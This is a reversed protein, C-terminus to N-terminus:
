TNQNNPADDYLDFLIKRNLKETPLILKSSTPVILTKDINAFSLIHQLQLYMKEADLNLTEIVKNMEDIKAQIEANRKIKMAEAEGQAKIKLAESEIKALELKEDRINTQQIKILERKKEEIEKKGEIFEKEAEIEATQKIKNVYVDMNSKIAENLQNAIEEDEPVIRKIDIGFIEFGNEEFIFSGKDGFIANKLIESAKSHLEEFNYKAAEDRIIGAMTSMALGIFDSVKFIKAPNQPDIKFRWKYRLRMKLLANDKTRIDLEDTSFNPGLKIKWIKHHVTGKPTGGSITLIYPRQFPGLMVVKPGFVISQDEESMILTAENELVWLPRARTYDINEGFKLATLESQTYDKEYLEEDPTLMIIKPGVELRIEGTKMNKIYIGEYHGLSIANVYREVHVYKPPIYNTPGKIIWLDGAKRTTGTDDVFDKLAKVLLGINEKLVFEERIGTPSMEGVDYSRDIEEGPHLSFMCPGIRVERDGYLIQDKEKDYPNLIIIYQGDKLIIKDRITGYISENSDLPSRYPGEVLRVEGTNNDIIHCYQLKTLLLITNKNEEGMEHSM